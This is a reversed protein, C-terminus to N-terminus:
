EQQKKDFRENPLGFLSRLLGHILAIPFSVFGM